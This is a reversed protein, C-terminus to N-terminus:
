AQPAKEEALNDIGMAKNGEDMIEAIQLSISKDPAPVLLVAIDEPTPCDIRSDDCLMAWILVTMAFMSRARGERSGNKILKLDEWNGGEKSFRYLAKADYQLKLKKGKLVIERM